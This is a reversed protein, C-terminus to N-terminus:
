GIHSCSNVALKCTCVYISNIEKRGVLVGFVLVFFSDTESRFMKLDCDHFEQWLRESWLPFSSIPAPLSTRARTTGEVLRGGSHSIPYKWRRFPVSLECHTGITKMKRLCRRIRWFRRPLVAFDASFASCLNVQQRKMKALKLIEHTCAGQSFKDFKLNM